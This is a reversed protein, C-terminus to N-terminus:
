LHENTLLDLWTDCAKALGTSDSQMIDIADAIPKLQAKLDWAQAFINYDSVKSIINRDFDGEHDQVIQIYHPRNHLFSEICTSQSKWRTDCPLQPRISGPIEALWAAPGHHNRFYKQIEVIHKMLTSPTVDQGLLNRWHASCGYVILQPNDKQLIDRM